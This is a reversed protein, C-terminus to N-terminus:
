ATEPHNAARFDDAWSSVSALSVGNGLIQAVAASASPTLRHQAIEGVISHGEQGWAFASTAYGISLAALAPAVLHHARMKGFGGNASTGSRPSTTLRALSMDLM